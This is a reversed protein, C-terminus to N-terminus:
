CSKSMYQSPTQRQMSLPSQKCFYYYLRSPSNFPRELVGVLFKRTTHGSLNIKFPHNEDLCLSPHTRCDFDESSCLLAGTNPNIRKWLEEKDMGHVLLSSDDCSSLALYDSYGSDKAKPGFRVPMKWMTHFRPEHVKTINMGLLWGGLIVDEPGSLDLHAIYKESAITLFHYIIDRTFITGFWLPYTYIAGNFLHSRCLSPGWYHGYVLERKPLHEWKSFFFEDMRFYSNGDIVALYTYKESRAQLKRAVKMLTPINNVMSVRSNSSDADTRMWQFYAQCESHWTHYNDINETVSRYVSVPIKSAERDINFHENMRENEDIGTTDEAQLNDEVGSAKEDSSHTFEQLIRWEKQGFVDNNWLVVYERKVRVDGFKSNAKLRKLQGQFESEIAPLNNLQDITQIMYLIFLHSENDKKLIPPFPHSSDHNQEEEIRESAAVAEKDANVRAFCFHQHTSLFFVFALIFLAIARIFPSPTFTLSPPANTFPPSM